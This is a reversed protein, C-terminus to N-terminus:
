EIEKKIEIALQNLVKWDNTKQFEDLKPFDDGFKEICISVSNDFTKLLEKESDNFAEDIIKEDIRYFDVWQQILEQLKSFDSESEQNELQKEKSTWLGITDIISNRSLEIFDSDYMEESIAKIRNEKRIRKIRFLYFPVYYFNLILLMLLRNTNKDYKNLFWICYIWLIMGISILVPFVKDFFVSDFNIDIM